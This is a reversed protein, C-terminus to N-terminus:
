FFELFVFSLFVHFCVFFWRGAVRRLLLSLSVPTSSLLGNTGNQKPANSPTKAILNPVFTRVFSFLESSNGLFATTTCYAGTQRRRCKPLLLGFFVKSVVCCFGVLCCCVVCGNELPVPINTSGSQRKGRHRNEFCARDLGIGITISDFITNRKGM